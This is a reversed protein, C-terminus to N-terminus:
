GDVQIGPDVLQSSPAVWYDKLRVDNSERFVDEPLIIADAKNRRVGGGDANFDAANLPTHIVIVGNEVTNDEIRISKETGKRDSRWYSIGTARSAATSGDWSATKIINDCVQVRELDYPPTDYNYLLIGSGTCRNRRIIYDCGDRAKIAGGKLETTWGSIDNDCISLGKAGHAYIGHDERPQTPAGDCRIGPSASTRLAPQHEARGSGM